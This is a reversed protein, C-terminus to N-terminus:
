SGKCLGSIGQCRCFIRTGREADRGARRMARRETELEAGGISMADDVACGEAKGEPSSGRVAGLEAGGISM